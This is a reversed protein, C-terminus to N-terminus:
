CIVSFANRPLPSCMQHFYDCTQRWTSNQFTLSCSPCHSCLGNQRFSSPVTVSRFRSAYHSDARLSCVRVCFIYYVKSKLRSSHNRSRGETNCYIYMEQRTYQGQEWCGSTKPVGAPQVQWLIHRILLLKVLTGSRTAHWHKLVLISKHAFPNCPATHEYLASCAMPTIQSSVRTIAM